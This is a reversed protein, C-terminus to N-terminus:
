KPSLVALNWDLALRVTENVTSGGLYPPATHRLAREDLVHHQQSTNSQPYGVPRIVVQGEEDKEKIRSNASHPNSFSYFSLFKFLLIRRQPYEQSSAQM